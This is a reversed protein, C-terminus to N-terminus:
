RYVAIGLSVLNEQYSRFRTSSQSRHSYSLTGRLYDNFRREASLSSGFRGRTAGGLSYKDRNYNLRAELILNRLLEHTVNLRFSSTLVGGVQVTGSDNLTRDASLVLKTLRTPEYTVDASYDLGSFPSQRPDRFSESIYGLGITGHLLRTIEFRAGVLLSYGRNSRDIQGARPRYDILSLNGTLYVTTLASYAYNIQGTYDHAARDRFSQDVFVGTPLTVDRYVYDRIGVTGAVSVRNFSKTVVASGSALRYHVPSGAVLDNGPTGRQEVLHGYSGQAAINLDHFVDLRGDAQVAYQDNNQDGYTFYRTDIFYGSVDLQHRNWDSKAAVNARIVSTADAVVNDHRVFINDDYGITAHLDPYVLFGGVRLGLPSNASPILTDTGAPVAQAFAPSAAGLLLAGGASLALRSKAAIILHALREALREPLRTM